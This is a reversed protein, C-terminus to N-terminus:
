FSRQPFIKLEKGFIIKIEGNLDTRFIKAGSKELLELVQKQPHHYPNDKGVGILAIKPQIKELIEQNTGKKSGHHSVKLIEARLNELSALLKASADGTFLIKFGAIQAKIVLSTENLDSSSFNLSPSLVELIDKGIRIRDGAKLVLQPIKKQNLLNLLEQFSQSESFFGNFIFLRPPFKQLIEFLGFYHDLNAHSLIFIDIQRNFFGFEKGLNQSLVRSPGADILIKGSYPFSLLSAEGQGVDFFYLVPEKQLFLIEKWIFVNAFFLFILSFIVLRKQNFSPM